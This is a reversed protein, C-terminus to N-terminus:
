KSFTYFADGGSLNITQCSTTPAPLPLPTATQPLPTATATTTTKPKCASDKCEYGDKCHDDYTCEICNGKSCVRQNLQCTSCSYSACDSDGGCGVKQKLYTLIITMANRHEIETGGDVSSLKGPIMVSVATDEIISFSTVILPSGQYSTIAIWFPYGLVDEKKELSVLGGFQPKTIKEESYDSCIKPVTKAIEVTSYQTAAVSIIQNNSQYLAALFKNPPISDYCTEEVEKEHIRKLPVGLLESPFMDNSFYVMWQASETEKQQSTQAALRKAYNEKLTKDVQMKWLKKKAEKKVDKDKGM